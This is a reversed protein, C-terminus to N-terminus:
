VDCWERLLRAARAPQEQPLAHGCEAILALPAPLPLADRVREANRPPTIVDQAGIALRVPLTLHRADALLDGQALAHVAQVYGGLKLASMARRVGELAAVQHVLRAARKEAMAAPGLAHIDDIRSQAGPPLEAGRPLGYGLAPSMLGLLAVREPHARAFAGAFLCGLSHGVLVVRALGLGDLVALLRAAYDAPAPLPEALPASGGYGPANWAYAARGAPFAARWSEADSGIGHLLMLPTGEGPAHLLETEAVRMM